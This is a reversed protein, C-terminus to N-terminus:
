KKRVPEVKLYWQRSLRFILPTQLALLALRPSDQLRLAANQRTRRPPRHNGQGGKERIKGAFMGGKATFMGHEDVPSVAPMGYYKGVFHDTQGHAPRATCWGRAESMYLNRLVRASRKEFGRPGETQARQRPEPSTAQPSPAEEKMRTNNKNSRQKAM